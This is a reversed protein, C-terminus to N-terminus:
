RPYRLRFLAALLLLAAIGSVAFAANLPRRDAAVRVQHRGAPVEIGLQLLNAVTTKTEEGDIFARYLPLWNRRAILVGGQPSDVEVEFADNTEAITRVSGNPRGASEEGPGSLLATTRPDVSESALLRFGTGGLAAPRAPIRRVNGVLMFRGPLADALRYVFLEGRCETPYRGILEVQSAADPEIERDALWRDVGLARVVRLAERDAAPHLQLLLIYGDLSDLYDATQALVYRRQWFTGFIPTLEDAACRAVLKSKEISFEGIPSPERSIGTRTRHFSLSDEPLAVLAAPPQRYRAIEDHWFTEQMQDLQLASGAALLLAASLPASRRALLAILCLVLAAPVLSALVQMWLMKEEPLLDASLPGLRYFSQFFGAPMSPVLLMAVLYFLTFGALLWALRRRAAEEEVFRQFGLGGLMALGTAWLLSYKCPFRLQSLGPLNEYLLRVVPNYGGLVLFLGAGLQTAAWRAQWARLAGRHMALLAAALALVGPFLSSFMPAPQTRFGSELSGHTWPVLLELLAAPSVSQLLSIDSSQSTMGRMSTPVVRALEVLGPAALMAAGLGSLLVERWPFPTPRFLLATAAAALALLASFPDGALALAALLFASLPWLWRKREADLWSAAFAPAVAVVAVLNYYGLLSLFYGGTAWFVGAAAAGEKRLGAARGLWAFAFLTLLWHLLVHANFARFVDAALYLLNSPYFPLGNANGSMPEGGRLLDVQPLLGQALSLAQNAKLPLHLALVDRFYLTGGGLVLPTVAVLIALATPALLSWYPRKM